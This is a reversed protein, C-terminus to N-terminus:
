EKNCAILFKDQQFLRNDEKFIRITDFILTTWQYMLSDYHPSAKTTPKNNNFMAAFQIYDKKTM